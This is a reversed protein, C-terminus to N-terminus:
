ELEALKGRIVALKVYYRSLMEERYTQQYLRDSRDLMEFTDYPKNVSDQIEKDLQKNAENIDQTEKELLEEIEDLTKYIEEKNYTKDKISTIIEKFTSEVKLM